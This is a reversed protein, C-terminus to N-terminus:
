SSTPTEYSDIHTFHTVLDNTSQKGSRVQLLNCVLITRKPFISPSTGNPIYKVIVWKNTAAHPFDEILWGVGHCGAASASTQNDLQLASATGCANSAGWDILLHVQTITVPSVPPAHCPLLLPGKLKSDNSIFYTEETIQLISGLLTACIESWSVSPVFGTRRRSRTAANGLSSPPAKGKLSYHKFM